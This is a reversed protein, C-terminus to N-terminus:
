CNNNLPINNVKRNPKYDKGLYNMIKPHIGTGYYDCEISEPFAEIATSCITAVKEPKVGVLSLLQTNVIKNYIVIDPFHKKYDFTDRPHTKILLKNHDYHSFISRNIQVWEDETLHCDDLLPQSFFIIPRNNLLNVDNDSIDFLEKIFEQKALSSETWLEQLSNIIVQKGKLIPSSNEETLYIVKCQNNNGYCNVFLNGFVLRQIKGKISSARQLLRKYELSHEQVNLTLWNPADALLSYERKGILLNLYPLDYAFINATKLFPFNRYKFFRFLLKQFRKEIENLLSGKGLLYTSCPIGKKVSSPMTDVTFYYSHHLIIDDPLLLMYQLLPYFNPAICVHTIDKVKMGFKELQQKCHKDM